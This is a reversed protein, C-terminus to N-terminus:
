GIELVQPGTLRNQPGIPNSAGELILARRPTPSPWPAAWTPKQMGRLLRRRKPPPDVWPRPRSSTWCWVRNSAGSADPVALWSRDMKVGVLVLPMSRNEISKGSSDSNEDIKPVVDLPTICSDDTHNAHSHPRRRIPQNVRVAQFRSADHVGHPLPHGLGTVHLHVHICSARQPKPSIDSWSM